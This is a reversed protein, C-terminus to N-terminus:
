PKCCADLAQVAEPSAKQDDADFGADTLLKRLQEPSTKRPNYKIFITNTEPKIEVKKVGPKSRLATNIKGACSGCEMCHDCYIKTHITITDSRPVKGKARGEQAFSATSFTLLVLLSFIIKGLATMTTKTNM